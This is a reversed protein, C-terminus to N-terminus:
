PPPLARRGMCAALPAARRRSSRRRSGGCSNQAEQAPPPGRRRCRTACRRGHDPRRRCAPCRRGHDPRCRCAAGAAAGGFFNPPGRVAPADAAAALAQPAHATPALAPPADAAAADVAAAHAAAAHTAAASIRPTKAGRRENAVAKNIEKTSYEYATDELPASTSIRKGRVAVCRADAFACYESTSKTSTCLRSSCGSGSGALSAQTRASTSFSPSLRPRWWSSWRGVRLSSSARAIGVHWLRFLRTLHGLFM